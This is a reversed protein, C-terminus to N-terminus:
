MPQSYPVLLLLRSHQVETLAMHRSREKIVLIKIKVENLIDKKKNVQGQYIEKCSIKRKQKMQNLILFSDGWIKFDTELSIHNFNFM